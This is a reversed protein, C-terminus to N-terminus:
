RLLGTRHAVTAAETRTSVGLKALINSVHVSATKPSIYLATAIEGNSNGEAVLAIVERERDTLRFRPDPEPPALPAPGAPELRLRARRAVLRIEDASAAALKQLEAPAGAGIRMGLWLLPWAYRVGFGTDPRDLEDRLRRGADARDGRAYALAAEIFVMPATFQVDTGSGFQHRAAQVDQEAGDLDGQWLRL